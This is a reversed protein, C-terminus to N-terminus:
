ENKTGRKMNSVIIIYTEIDMSLVAFYVFKLGLIYLNRYIKVLDFTLLFIGHQLIEM